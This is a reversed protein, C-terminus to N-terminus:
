KTKSMDPHMKMFDMCKADKMMADHSMGQCMKMTKMDADSMKSTMMGKSSTMSGSTMSGSTMSGSTMAGATGASQGPMPAPKDQAFAAGAILSLTVLAISATRIM